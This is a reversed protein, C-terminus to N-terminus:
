TSTRARARVRGPLLPGARRLVAGEAEYEAVLREGAEVNGLAIDAMDAATITAPIGTRTALDRLQAAYRAAAGSTAPPWAWTSSRRWAGATRRPWAATRRWALQEALMREAEGHQGLATAIRAARVQHLVSYLACEPPLLPTELLRAAEDLQAQDTLIEVELLRLWALNNRLGAFELSIAGSRITELADAWAGTMVEIKAKAYIYQGGVDQWGTEPLLGTAKAM